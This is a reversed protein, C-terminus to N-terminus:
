PSEGLWPYYKSYLQTVSKLPPRRGYRSIIDEVNTVEANLYHEDSVTWYIKDGELSMNFVTAGLYKDPEAINKYKLNFGEQIRSTYKVSDASICIM